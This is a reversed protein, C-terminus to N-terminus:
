KLTNRTMDIRMAEYEYFERLIKVPDEGVIVKVSVEGFNSRVIYEVLGSDKELYKSAVKVDAWDGLTKRIDKKIENFLKMPNKKMLKLATDPDIDTETFIDMVYIVTRRGGYITTTKVAM